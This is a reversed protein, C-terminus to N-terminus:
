EMGVLRRFTEYISFSRAPLDGAREKLIEWSNRCLFNATKSCAAGADTGAAAAIKRFIARNM